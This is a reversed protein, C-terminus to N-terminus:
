YYEGIYFHKTTWALKSQSLFNLRKEPREHSVLVFHGSGPKLVRSIHKLMDRARRSGSEDCMLSDFTGKDIVLDFISDEYSMLTADMVEFYLGPRSISDSEYFDKLRNVVEDSIDISTM